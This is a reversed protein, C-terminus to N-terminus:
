KTVVLTFISSKGSLKINSVTVSTTGVALPRIGPNFTASGDDKGRVFEAISPDAVLGVWDTVTTDGSNLDVVNNLSVEVTTGNITALDVIIPAIVSASSGSSSNSPKSPTSSTGSCAGLGCTALIVLAATGM